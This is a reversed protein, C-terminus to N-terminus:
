RGATGPIAFKHLCTWLRPLHLRSSENSRRDCGCRGCRSHCHALPIRSWRNEHAVEHEFKSAILLRLDRPPPTRLIQQHGRVDVRLQRLSRGQFAVRDVHERKIRYHVQKAFYRAQNALAADPLPRRSLAVGPGRGTESEGWRTPQRSSPSSDRSGLWEALVGTTEDVCLGGSAAADATKTVFSEM